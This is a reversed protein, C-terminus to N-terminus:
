NGDWEELCGFLDGETYNGSTMRFVDVVGERKYNKLVWWLSSGNQYKHVVKFYLQRVFIEFNEETLWGPMIHAHEGGSYGLNDLCDPFALTFTGGHKLVRKIECCMFYPNSLHEITETCFAHDFHDDPAPIPDHSSDLCRLDLQDLVGARARINEIGRGDAEAAPAIDIGMAWCGHIIAQELLYGQGYGIEIIFEGPSIPKIKDALAWAQGDAGIGPGEMSYNAHGTANARRLEDPTGEWTM